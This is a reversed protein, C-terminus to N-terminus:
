RTSEMAFPLLVSLLSNGIQFSYVNAKFTGLKHLCAKMIQDSNKCYVSPNSSTSIPIYVINHEVTNSCPKENFVGHIHLNLEFPHSHVYMYLSSNHQTTGQLLLLLGPLEIPELLGPNLGWKLRFDKWSCVLNWQLYDKIIVKGDGSIISISNLLFFFTEDMWRAITLISDVDLVNDVIDSYVM